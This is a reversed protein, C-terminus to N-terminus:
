VPYRVIVIGSGGNANNAGGGGGSGTNVTGALGGGGGVGNGGRGGGGSGGSAFTSANAAQGGTGGGGGGAYSGSVGTGTAYAWASFASTGAGGVGGLKTGTTFAIGAGGAGGGGGGLAAFSNTGVSGANAYFTTGSLSGGATGASGASSTTGNSGGGGGGSGGNRGPASGGGGGGGSSTLLSGVSSTGGDAGQSAGYSTAVAGGAGVTISTSTSLSTSNYAIGGAGGGGSDGAGYGGGGGGAIVLLDCSLTSRPVFTGSAIFAHYWYTGDTSIIDGGTAKALNATSKIGYLDFTSGAVINGSAMYFAISTIASTSRWQGVMKGAINNDSATDTNGYVDMNSLVTKYTTSNSYNNIHFVTQGYLASGMNTGPSWAGGISTRSSARDTSWAAGGVAYSFMRGQSYNTASDDNFRYILDQSTSASTRTRCVLFLDTYSQDINSFVVSGADSTLEISQLPTTTPM